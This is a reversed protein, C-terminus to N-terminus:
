QCLQRSWTINSTLREDRLAHLELERAHFRIDLISSLLRKLAISQAAILISQLACVLGSSLPM